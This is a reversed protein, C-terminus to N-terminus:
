KYKLLAPIKALICLTVKANLTILLNRFFNRYEFSDLRIVYNEYRRFSKNSKTSHM